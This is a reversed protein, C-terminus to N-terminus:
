IFVHNVCAKSMIFEYQITFITTKVKIYLQLLIIMYHETREILKTQPSLHNNTVNKSNLLQFCSNQLLLCLQVMILKINM